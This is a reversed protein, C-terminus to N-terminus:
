FMCNCTLNGNGTWQGTTRECYRVYNKHIGNIRLDPDSCKYTTKSGYNIIDSKKELTATM